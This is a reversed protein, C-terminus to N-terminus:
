KKPATKSNQCVPSPSVMPVFLQRKNKEAVSDWTKCDTYSNSTLHKFSRVPYHEKKNSTKNNKDNVCNSLWTKCADFLFNHCSPHKQALVLRFFFGASQWRTLNERNNRQLQPRTSSQVQFTSVPPPSLPNTSVHCCHKNEAKLKTALLTFISLKQVTLWHISFSYTNCLLMPPPLPPSPRPRSKKINMNTILYNLVSSWQKKQKFFLNYATFNSWKSWEERHLTHLLRM